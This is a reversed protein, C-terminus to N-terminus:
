ALRTLVVGSGSGGGQYTIQFQYGGQTFVAGEPLGAFTGVVGGPDATALLTFDAGVPPAFGLVLGLASGGLDLPGGALLQSYGSGADTGALLASFTTLLDFTVSGGVALVGPDATGPAVTGRYVTLADVAGAGGFTGGTVTVPGSVSM